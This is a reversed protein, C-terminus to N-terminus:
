RYEKETEVTAKSDGKLEKLLVKWHKNCRELLAMNTDMRHILDTEEKRKM